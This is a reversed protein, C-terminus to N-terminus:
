PKGMLVFPAWYYPNPYAEKLALQAERLAARKRGGDTLRRYLLKMFESSSRDNVAWLSVILSPVGAYLFGRMLGVLEDGAFVKSLGTQCASLTVLEANLDLNFIDYFNLWSDALKLSSFL